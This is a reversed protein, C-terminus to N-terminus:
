NGRQVNIKRYHFLSFSPLLVYAAMRDFEPNMESHIRNVGIVSEITPRHTGLDCGRYKRNFIVWVPHGISIQYKKAHMTCSVRGTTTTPDSTFFRCFWSLLHAKSPFFCVRPLVLLFQTALLRPIQCTGFNAEYSYRRPCGALWLSRIVNTSLIDGGNSKCTSLAAAKGSNGASNAVLRLRVRFAYSEMVFNDDRQRSTTAFNDILESLINRWTFAANQKKGVTKKSCRDWYSAFFLITRSAVPGFVVSSSSPRRSAFDFNGRAQSSSVSCVCTM